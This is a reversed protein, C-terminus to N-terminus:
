FFDILRFRVIVVAALASPALWLRTAIPEREEKSLKAYPGVRMFYLLYRFVHLVIRWVGYKWILHLLAFVAGIVFTWLLAELGAYVGLFAGIMAILKVDGGGVKDEGFLVFCIVMVCACAFFGLASDSISTFGSLTAHVDSGNTLELGLITALASAVLAAVIGTYTTWNYVYGRLVDTITAVLLFGMLLCTCTMSRSPGWSQTM